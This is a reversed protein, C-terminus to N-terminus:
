VSQDQTRLKLVIFFAGIRESGALSDTSIGKFAFKSKNSVNRLTKYDPKELSFTTTYGM